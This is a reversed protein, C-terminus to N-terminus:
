APRVMPGAAIIVDTMAATSAITGDLDAPRIIVVTGTIVTRMIADMVRILGTIIMADGHVGIMASGTGATEGAGIMMMTVGGNVTRGDIANGHGATAIVSKMEETANMAGTTPIGVGAISM